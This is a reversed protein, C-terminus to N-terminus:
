HRVVRDASIAPFRREVVLFQEFRLVVNVIQLESFVVTVVIFLKLADAPLIHLRALYFVLSDIAEDVVRSGFFARGVTGLFWLALYISHQSVDLLVIKLLLLPLGLLLSQPPLVEGLM